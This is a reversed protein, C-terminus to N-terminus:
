PVSGLVEYSGNARLRVISNTSGQVGYIYNDKPNFGVADFSGGIYVPFGSYYVAGFGGFSISYVTTNSSVASLILRGNCTFTQSFVAVYFFSFLFSLLSARFLYM